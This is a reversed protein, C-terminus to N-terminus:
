ASVIKKAPAKKPAAKKAAPKKAPAKKAAAKKKGKAPPAAAARADILQAAEELTLADKEISKPLTANTTGDTVYAGYRGEMLKIEAESRPHLGLVKLPAQAGRQPRGGGAAAEALKVVAANMGTEFVDATSTLRAYKGAHKLYPGYRGIAATIPEGTEPHTGITRPLSLLKLAWALDLEGIDKPISAMKRTEGEGIQIYPGFRGSKREVPLGTEPDNGLTEPGTDTGEEDGGPQGFRRTYKCEPYNSCAVFAGFKGGRLALQGAGCKPCLRPDGGDTLPPFLYPALFKDLEATVESPKQEMVETTRPKFDKWFAELVAQWEARGGSVEDLEDELGSTFDYSVYKEFFRELFATVLRGSEEAFFRNKEVRVYERDKLTKIISAYTSPRGIGLEELRKVLSAESFRPPPQTFHQEATVGKKAPADGERLRPLRKADEDQSDDSGEEYLALYGPFLMVQGTARLGTQGSGDLMEVTTREMRASAMQSALARKWILDYLRAHDGGGAKDKAFDTPRIAEHAEQANKAKTQYVRPKDPVYSADYRNAVALRAASIASSDMQVGDTRMYTIAGDEYLGQAIRMTHDASFGLKRSAEQQLTSTTFPPPPNRTAPKVEVSQVTFLGAEVAAKARMASGEEGISLRDLKQGEFTVLRAQFPTGDQEMDAIVSWYEQARFAEIERERSVIIRLAVSQVRGASKAGPLKRWLVPSLTFGVLYDLARRARYADILDTDLERPHKMAETVTAKTIANFTVRQVDKPLAKRNRLVEQVHWSIAEGERDPDTALILRDAQKALDTIAKLQKAKDAYNEWEMAFGDDPNVSGDKPPLDRVHGYSALVRYDSGLYKEITKAKAPSEVIVLQM